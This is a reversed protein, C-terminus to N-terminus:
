RTPLKMKSYKVNKLSPTEGLTKHLKEVRTVKKKLINLSTQVPTEFRDKNM